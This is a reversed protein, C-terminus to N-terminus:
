TSANMTESKIWQVYDKVLNYIEIEKQLFEVITFFEIERSKTEQLRNSNNSVITLYLAALKLTLM